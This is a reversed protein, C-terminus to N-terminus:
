CFRLLVFGARSASHDSESGSDAESDENNCCLDLAPHLKERPVDTFAVGLGKGDREFSIENRMTDHVVTLMDGATLSSTYPKNYTTASILTGSTLELFWGNLSNQGNIDFADRSAFGVLATTSRALLDRELQVSFRNVSQSGLVATVCDRSGYVRQRLVTRNEDGLWLYPGCRSADWVLHPRAVELQFYNFMDLAKDLQSQELGSLDVRGSRLYDLVLPFYRPNKNIFYFGSPSTLNLRLDINRDCIVKMM